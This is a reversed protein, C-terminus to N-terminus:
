IETEIRELHKKSENHRSYNSKKDASFGCHVCEYKKTETLASPSTETM